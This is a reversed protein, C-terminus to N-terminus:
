DIGAGYDFIEDALSNGDSNYSEIVNTYAEPTVGVLVTQAAIVTTEQAFGSQTWPLVFHGNIKVKIIIQHLVQNIGAAYFNSEFDTIANAAIQMKFKIKPGFGVTYENGLLTGVPIAVTIEDQSNIGGAIQSSIASKLYNIKAIDIELSSINNESNRTLIVMNDYTVESGSMEDGIVENAISFARNAAQSSAYDIIIQRVTFFSYVLLAAMIGLCVIIAIIYPMKKKKRRKPM